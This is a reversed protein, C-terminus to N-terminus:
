SGIGLGIPTGIAYRNVPIGLIDYPYTNTVYTDFVLDTAYQTPFSSFPENVLGSNSCTYNNYGTFLFTTTSQFVGNTSPTIGAIFCNYYPQYHYTLPLNALAKTPRALGSTRARSIGPSSANGNLAHRSTINSLWLLRIQSSNFNAILTALITTGTIYLTHDTASLSGPNRIPIDIVVAIVLFAIVALNLVIAAYPGLYSLATPKLLASSESTHTAPNSEAVPIERLLHVEEAM